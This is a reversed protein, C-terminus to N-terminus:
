MKDFTTQKLTYNNCKGEHAHISIEIFCVLYLTSFRLFIGLISPNETWDKTTLYVAESFRVSIPNVIKFHQFQTRVPPSSSFCPLGWYCRM